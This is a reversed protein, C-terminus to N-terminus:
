SSSTCNTGGSIHDYKTRIKTALVDLLPSSSEDYVFHKAKLDKYLETNTELREEALCQVTGTPAFLFEGAENVLLEKGNLRTFRFPLLSFAAPTPAFKELPFFARAM